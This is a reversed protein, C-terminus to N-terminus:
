REPQQTAGGDVLCGMEMVYKRGSKMSCQVSCWCQLHSGRRTGSRILCGESFYLCLWMVLELCSKALVERFGEGGVEGEGGDRPLVLALHVTAADADGGGDM